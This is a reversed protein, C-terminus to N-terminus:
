AARVTFRVNRGTTENHGTPVGIFADYEGLTNDGSWAVINCTRAEGRKGFAKRAKRDAFIGAAEGMCCATVPRHTECLYRRTEYFYATM